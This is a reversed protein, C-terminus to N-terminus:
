LAKRRQSDRNKAEVLKKGLSSIISQVSEKLEKATGLHLSGVVINVSIDGKGLVKGAVASVIEGIKAEMEETTLGSLCLIFQDASFRALLDMDRILEKTVSVVEALLAHAEDIGYTDLYQRFADVSIIALGVGYDHARARELETSLQPIFAKYQLAKTADDISSLKRSTSILEFKELLNGIIYGLVQLHLLDADNFSDGNTRDCFIYGVGRKNTIIPALVASSFDHELKLDRYAPDDPSLNNLLLPQQELVVKEAAPSPGARHFQKVFSYSIQRSIKIRLESTDDDILIVAVSQSPFYGKMSDMIVHLAEEFSLAGDSERMVHVLWGGLTPTNM